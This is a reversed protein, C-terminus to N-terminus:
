IGTRDKPSSVGRSVSSAATARLFFLGEKATWTTGTKVSSCKVDTGDVTRSARGNGCLGSPQRGDSSGSHGVLGWMDVSEAM